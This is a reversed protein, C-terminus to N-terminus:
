PSGSSIRQTDTVETNPAGISAQVVSAVKETNAKTSALVGNPRWRTMTPPLATAAKRAPMATSRSSTVM